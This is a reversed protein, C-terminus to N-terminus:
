KFEKMILRATKEFTYKSLSERPLVLSQPKKDILIEM